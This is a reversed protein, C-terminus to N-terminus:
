KKELIATYMGGEGDIFKRVFWGSGDLLDEMEEQSLFLLDFWPTVYKQYRIRIRLQGAPRGRKKNFEHYWLHEPVMTKYPDRTAAIIRGSESTISHFKKLLWEARKHNGCLGFNNGFMVITDFTGLKSSIKTLPLVETKRVGRLKCVEIALPSNDLCTVDVGGRQLFLAARGAGSGIDLVNGRVYDISKREYEDWHIYERFYTTPGSSVDFFGDDREVIEFGKRYHYYDWIAHGFADQEDKLM